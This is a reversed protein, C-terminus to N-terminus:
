RIKSLILRKEKRLSLSELTAINLLNQGCNSSFSKFNWLISTQAWAIIGFKWFFCKQIALSYLEVGFKTRNNCTQCRLLSRRKSKESGSVGWSCLNTIPQILRVRLLFTLLLEFFSFFGCWEKYPSQLSGSVWINLCQGNAKCWRIERNQEAHHTARQRRIVGQSLHARRKYSRTRRGIKM